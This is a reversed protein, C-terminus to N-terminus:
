WETWFKEDELRTDLFTFILICSLIIKGTTSYPHSVQDRSMLPPVYVSSTKLVPHQPSYRSQLLSFHYSTPSFQIILLKMVKVGRWVYNSLDLSPPNSPCPIHCSHPFSSHL